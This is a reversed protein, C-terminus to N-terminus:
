QMVHQGATYKYDTTNQVNTTECQFFVESVPNDLRKM